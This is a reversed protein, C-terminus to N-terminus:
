RARKTSAEPAVREVDEKPPNNFREVEEAQAENTPLAFPTSCPFFDPGHWSFKATKIFVSKFTTPLPGHNKSPDASNNVVCRERLNPASRRSTKSSAFFTAFKTVSPIWILFEPGFMCGSDKVESQEQIRKFENSNRDHVNIISEGGIDMAKPRWVIPLCDFEKGLDTLVKANVLGFHGINIKGEKADGSNGGFLMIRGLYKNSSSVSGFDDDNYAQVVVLDTSGNDSKAIENSM